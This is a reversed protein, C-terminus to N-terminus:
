REGDLALRVRMKDVAHGLVVSAEAHTCHLSRALEKMSEGQWFRRDLAERELTTLGDFTHVNARLQLADLDPEEDDIFGQRVLDSDEDVDSYPWSGDIPLLSQASHLHM